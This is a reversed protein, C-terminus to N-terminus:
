MSILSKCKASTRSNNFFDSPRSATRSLSELRRLIEWCYNLVECRVGYMGLDTGLTCEFLVSIFNFRRKKLFALLLSTYLSRSQYTFIQFVDAGAITLKYKVPKFVTACFHVPM